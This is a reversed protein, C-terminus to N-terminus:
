PKEGAAAGRLSAIREKVRDLGEKGAARLLVAKAAARVGSGLARRPTDLVLERVREAAGPPRAGTLLGPFRQRHAAPSVRVGRVRNSVNGGHVVQLWGPPGPVERVPMSRGLLTHWDAWCTVADPWPEAVSCFANTRDRRAFLGTGALILGRPLYLATRSRTQAAAHQLREVFDTAVGDDNDLNTTMLEAAPDPVLSRLDSLLEPREVSTRYVPTFLGDASWERIRERLWAPSEPDFYILWKFRTNSQAAVSPLCYREFLSSRERLWGERARILSEPGPTPLNFRTILFHDGTWVPAAADVADLLTRARADWSHQRALRRREEARHPDPAEALVRQLAATFAAPSDERTVHGTGLWRAAPLDTSVVPLGASLYDLTKLPFSSRNFETNAYPTIGAGAGGLRGPVHEPPITGEWSVNTHTLLADLRARAAPDRETRPGILALPIGAGAVADLIDFDLRENLQGLLVAGRKERGHEPSASSDPLPVCGNPLLLVPIGPRLLRLRDALDETVAAVLDAEALNQSMCRRIREAPLGMLPAGALWDDTVFFVKIGTDLRPFRALPAAVVVAGPAKSTGAARRIALRQLGGAVAGLVPRWAGPPVPVILRTLQPAVEEAVARIGRATGGFVPAPPDAWLVERYEALAKALRKETGELDDWRTGAIWVLTGKSSM